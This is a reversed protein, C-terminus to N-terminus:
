PNEKRGQTPLMLRITTGHGPESDVTFKCKGNFHLQLRRIVNPLGIRGSEERSGAFMQRLRDLQESDMGDGDDQVSLVIRGGSETTTVVVKGRRGAPIIGHTIANEILPQLTLRPILFDELESPLDLEYQLRDELRNQQIKLYDLANRYEMHLPVLATSTDMSYQMLKGLSVVVSSIDMENRDILMWNISDLTNNLFHPNIQAQLAEIEANKQALKEEYVRSVLTHIRDMMYNFSQTLEGVEDRGEVALSVNLHRYQVTKMADNLRALPRTISRSLFRLLIYAAVACFIVLLIIYDRLADAGPFLNSEEVVSCTYWGLMGNYQISCYYSLGGQRFSFARNGARYRAVIQELVEQSVSSTQFMPYFSRDFLVSVQRSLSKQKTLLTNGMTLPDVRLLLLGSGEEGDSQLTRALLITDGREPYDLVDSWILKGPLRQAQDILPQLLQADLPLSSDTRYIVQDEWIVTVAQVEQFPDVLGQCISQMQSLPMDLTSASLIGGALAEVSANLQRSRTTLSIDMRNVADHLSLKSSSRATDKARDFSMCGILVSILLLPIGCIVTVKKWFKMDRFFQM